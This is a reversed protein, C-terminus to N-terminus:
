PITPQDHQTLRLWGRVDFSPCDKRIPPGYESLDRHGLIVATPFKERWEALLVRLAYFQEPTFNNEATKGDEAVGGVLCVAVSQGNFRQAHAGPQDLARGDEITGDRRIVAHYGLSFFGREKHWREIEKAGIDMSPRSASCHVVIFKVADAPMPTYKIM